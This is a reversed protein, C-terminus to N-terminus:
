HIYVHDCNKMETLSFLIISKKQGELKFYNYWYAGHFESRVFEIELRVNGSDRSYQNPRFLLRRGKNQISNIPGFMEAEELSMPKNYFASPTSSRKIKGLKLYIIKNCCSLIEEANHSVILVGLGRISILQMLYDVVKQRLSVDLHVFPEDLFLYDRELALAYLISLRQKEGGSLTRIQQFRQTELNTLPLLSDIFKLKYEENLDTMALRLCDEVSRFEDMKFEQTVFSVEKFGPILLSNALPKLQDDIHIEGQNPTSHGGLVNLLTTKGAGSKGVIGTISGKPISIRDIDLISKDNFNVKINNAKIM